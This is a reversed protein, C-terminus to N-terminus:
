LNLWGAAAGISPSVESALLALRRLVAPLRVMGPVGTLAPHAADVGWAQPKRCSCCVGLHWRWAGWRTRLQAHNVVTLPLMFSHTHDNANAVMVNAADIDADGAAAAAAAAPVHCYWHFPTLNCHLCALLLDKQPVNQSLCVQAAAGATAAAAQQITPPPSAGAFGGPPPAPSAANNPHARSLNPTQAIPVFTMNNGMPGQPAQTYCVLHSGFCLWQFWIHALVCGDFGFTLQFVAMSHYSSTSSKVVPPYLHTNQTAVCDNDSATDEAFAASVLQSCYWALIALLM